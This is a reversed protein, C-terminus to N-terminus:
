STDSKNVVINDPEYKQNQKTSKPPDPEQGPGRVWVRLPYLDVIENISTIIGITIDKNDSVTRVTYSLVLKRFDKLKDPNEQEIINKYGM